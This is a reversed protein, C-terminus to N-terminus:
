EQAAQVVAKDELIDLAVAAVVPILLERLEVVLSVEQEEEVLEAQVLHEERLIIHAVVAVV